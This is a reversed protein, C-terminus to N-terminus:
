YDRFRRREHDSTVMVVTVSGLAIQDVIISFADLAASAAGDSVSIAIDTFQNVDGATPRGYLRGTASEFTAWGPRNEISFRCPIATPTRRMPVFIM